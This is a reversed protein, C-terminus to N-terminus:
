DQGGNKIPVPTRYQSEPVLGGARPDLHPGSPSPRPTGSNHIPTVAARPDRNHLTTM